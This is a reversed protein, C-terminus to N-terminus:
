RKGEHSAQTSILVGQMDRVETMQGFKDYGFGAFVDNADSYSTMWGQTNYTMTYTQADAPAFRIDDILGSAASITISIAHQSIPIAYTKMVRQWEPGPRKFPDAVAIGDVELGTPRNVWFSLEFKKGATVDTLSLAITANGAMDLSREGSRAKANTVTATGIWGDANVIAGVAGPAEDVTLIRCSNRDCNMVQGVPFLDGFRSHHFYSVYNGYADRQELTLGVKSYQTVTSTTQYLRSKLFSSPVANPQLIEASTALVGNYNLLRRNADMSSRLAIESEKRWANSATGNYIDTFHRWTTINRKFLRHGSTPVPALLDRWYHAGEQMLGACFQGRDVGPPLSADPVSEEDCDVPGLGEYVSISYPQILMNKRNPLVSNYLANADGAAAAVFEPQRTFLPGMGSYDDVPTAGKIWYAPTIVTTKPQVVTEPDQEPTPPATSGCGCDICLEDKAQIETSVLPQGTYFDFYSNITRIGVGKRTSNATTPQTAYEISQIAYQVASHEVIEMEQLGIVNEPEPKPFRGWGADAGAINNDCIWRMRLRETTKGMDSSLRHKLFQTEPTGAFLEVEEHPILVDKIRPTINNLLGIQEVNCIDEKSLSTLYKFTQKGVLEGSETYKKISTSLGQLNSCIHMRWRHHKEIPTGTLKNDTNYAGNISRRVMGDPDTVEWYNSTDDQIYDDIDACTLFNNVIRGRGKRIEHVTGYTVGPGGKLMSASPSVDARDDGANSFPPPVSSTAGSSFNGPLGQGDDCVYLYELVRATSPEGKKQPWGSNFTLKKVRVGGGPVGAVHSVVEPEQVRVGTSVSYYDWYKTEFEGPDTPSFRDHTTIPGFEDLFKWAFIGNYVNSGAPYKYCVYNNKTYDGDVFAEALPKNDITTLKTDSNDDKLAWIRNLPAAEAPYQMKRAWGLNYQFFTKGPLYFKADVGGANVLNNFFTIHCTQGDAQIPAYQIHVPDNLDKLKFNVWGRQCAISQMYQLKEPSTLDADAAFIFQVNGADSQASTRIPGLDIPVPLLSFCADGNDAKGEQRGINVASEKPDFLISAFLNPDLQAILHMQYEPNNKKAADSQWQKILEFDKNLQWDPHAPDASVNRYLRFVSSVRLEVEELPKNGDMTFLELNINGWGFLRLLNNRAILDKEMSINKYYGIDSYDTADVKDDGNKDEIMNTTIELANIAEAARTRGVFAYDDSEYEINMDAGSPMAVTKLSWAEVDAPDTNHDYVNRALKKLVTRNKEQVVGGTVPEDNLTLHESVLAMNLGQITNSDAEDLARKFTGNSIDILENTLNSWWQNTAPYMTGNALVQNIEASHEMYLNNYLNVDNVIRGLAEGIARRHRSELPAGTQPDTILAPDLEATVYNYDQANLLVRLTDCMMIGFWPKDPRDHLYKGVITKWDIINRSRITTNVQGGDHKYYGWRDWHFRKYPAAQGEKYYTFNYPPLFNSAGVGIKLSRLTLKGATMDQAGDYLVAYTNPIGPCLSYDYTFQVQRLLEEDAIGDDALKYLEIRDLKKLKPEHIRSAFSIGKYNVPCTNSLAPLPPIANSIYLKRYPKGGNNKSLAASTEYDVHDIQLDGSYNNVICESTADDYVGYSFNIHMVDGQEPCMFISQLYTGGADSGVSFTQETYRAENGDGHDRNYRAEKGDERDSNIFKALHTPTYIGTLYYLEKVGWSAQGYSYMKTGGTMQEDKGTGTPMLGEYPTRYHYSPIYDGYEFKIWGGLDNKDIGDNTRDIYDPSKIATLLWTHAYAREMTTSNYINGFDLYDREKKKKQEELTENKNCAFVKNIFNLVPKHFEYVAGDQRVITFGTIANVPVNPDRDAVDKQIVPFIGVSSSVRDELETYGPDDHPLYILRHHEDDWTPLIATSGRNRKNLQSQDDLGDDPADGPAPPNWYEGNFTGGPNGAERFHVVPYRSEYEHSITADPKVFPTAGVPVESNFKNQAEQTEDDLWASFIFSWWKAELQGIWWPVAAEFRDMGFYDGIDQRYPRFSSTIGNANLTYGDPTSRPFAKMNDALDLYTYNGTLDRLPLAPSYSYEMKENKTRYSGDEPPTDHLYLYGYLNDTEVNHIWYEFYRFGLGVSVIKAPVGANVAIQSHHFAGINASTSNFSSAIQNARRLTNVMQSLQIGMSNPPDLPEGKNDVNPGQKATIAAESSANMGISVVTGLAGLFLSLSSGDFSIDGFGDRKNYDILKVQMLSSGVDLGFHGGQDSRSGFNVTAGFGQFSVGISADWGTITNEANITAVSRGADYDDPYRNVSHRIGGPSLSWGLGVWTAEQELQAGSRYGLNIPYSLGAGPVELLPIGYSFDGSLLDVMGNVDMSKFGAYDPQTPGDTLAFLRINITLVVIALICLTRIVANGENYKKM